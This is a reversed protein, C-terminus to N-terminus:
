KKKNKRNYLLRNGGNNCIKAMGKKFRKNIGTEFIIIRNKKDM